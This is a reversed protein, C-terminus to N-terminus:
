SATDVEPLLVSLRCESPKPQVCREKCKSGFCVVISNEKTLYHLTFVNSSTSKVLIEPMGKGFDEGRCCGLQEPFLPNLFETMTSLDAM